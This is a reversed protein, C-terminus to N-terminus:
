SPKPPGHVMEPPTQINKRPFTGKPHKQQKVDGKKLPKLQYHKNTKRVQKNTINIPPTVIGQHLNRGQLRTSEFDVRNQGPAKPSTAVNLGFTQHICPLGPLVVQCCPDLM